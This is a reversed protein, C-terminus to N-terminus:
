WAHKGHGFAVYTAGTTVIQGKKIGSKSGENEEGCFRLSNFVNPDNYLKPDHHMSYSPVGVTSGVPLFTGDSFTFPKVVKRTM